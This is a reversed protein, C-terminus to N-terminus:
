LFELDSKALFLSDPVPNHCELGLSKISEDFVVLARDGLDQCVTGKAGILKWYNEREDCDNPSQLTGCFKVLRVRLDMDTLEPLRIFRSM